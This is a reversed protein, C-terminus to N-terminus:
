KLITLKIRYRVKSKRRSKSAAIEKAKELERLRAMFTGFGLVVVGLVIGELGSEFMKESVYRANNKTNIDNVVVGVIGLIWVFLIIGFYGYALVKSVKIQKDIKQSKKM